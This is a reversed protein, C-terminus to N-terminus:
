FGKEIIIGHAEEVEAEPVSVEFYDDAKEKRSIPNIRVLIGGEELISKLKEAMEKNQAMYVVTWM